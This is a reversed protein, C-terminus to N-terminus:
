YFNVGFRFDRLGNGLILHFKGTRLYLLMLQLFTNNATEANGYNGEILLCYYSIFLLGDRGTYFHLKKM